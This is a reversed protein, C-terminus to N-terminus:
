GMEEFFHIMILAGGLAGSLENSREEIQLTGSPSSDTMQETARDHEVAVDLDHMQRLM